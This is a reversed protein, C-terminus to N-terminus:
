NEVKRLKKDHMGQRLISGGKTRFFVVIFEGKGLSRNEIYAVTKKAGVKLWAHPFGDKEEMIEVKDGPRIEVGDMGYARVIKM